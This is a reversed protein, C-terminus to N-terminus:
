PYLIVTVRNFRYFEPTGSSQEALLAQLDEGGLPRNVVLWVRASQALLSDLRERALRRDFRVFDLVWWRSNLAFPQKRWYEFDLPYGRSAVPPVFQDFYLDFSVQCLGSDVLVVDGERVQGAVLQAALNWEEKEGEAYLNYLSVGNAAVVAALLGLGAQRVWRLPCGFCGAAVLLVIGGSAAIVTRDLFVPKLLSVVYASGIPMSLLLGAFAL